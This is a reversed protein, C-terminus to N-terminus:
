PTKKDHLRRAEDSIMKVAEALSQTSKSIAVDVVNREKLYGIMEAQQAQIHQWFFWAFIACFAWPGFKDLLTLATKM